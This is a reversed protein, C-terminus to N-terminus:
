NKDNVSTRSLSTITPTTAAHQSYPTLKHLYLALTAVKKVARVSLTAGTIGDISQNLRLNNKNKKLQLSKFQDTFFNYKVEAGRSERYELIEVATISNGDVVVGITIPQEKGVEDLIWATRSGQGWYRVRLQSFRYDLNKFASQRLEDDVWLTGMISTQADETFYSRLFDNRSKLTEAHTSASLTFVSIFMLFIHLPLFFNVPM